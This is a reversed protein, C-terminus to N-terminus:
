QSYNSGFVELMLNVLKERDPVRVTGNETGYNFSFEENLSGTTINSIPVDMMAGGLALIQDPTLNSYINNNLQRVLSPMQLVMRSLTGEAGLQERIALLVQLQREGRLYDNDGHRTRAYQLATRGDLVQTGPRLFLPDFGYNMDPFTPDNIIYPVDVTVGGISDVLVIFAEFDVALYADIYIGLNGQITEMALFPGYGEQRLEGNVMLTNVRVLGSGDMMAFHLDRPIDLIGISQTQPDYSVIFIADTRVSLTDRANPRRDMGLVLTTYRANVPWQPIIAQDAQQAVSPTPQFIIPFLFVSILLYVFVRRM